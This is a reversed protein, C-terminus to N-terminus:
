SGIGTDGTAPLFFYLDLSKETCIHADGAAHIVASRNGALDKNVVLHNGFVACGPLKGACRAGGAGGVNGFLLMMMGGFGLSIGYDICPQGSPNIWEGFEIMVGSGDWSVVVVAM